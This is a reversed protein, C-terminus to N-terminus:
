EHYETLMTIPLPCKELGELLQARNREFSTKNKSSRALTVLTSQAKAKNTNAIFYFHVTKKTTIEAHTTWLKPAKNGQRNNGDFISGVKVLKTHSDVIHNWFDGKMDTCLATGKGKKIFVGFKIFVGIRHPNNKAAWHNEVIDGFKLGTPKHENPEQTTGVYKKLDM